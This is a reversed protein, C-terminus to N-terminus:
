FLRGVSQAFELPDKANKRLNCPRCAIVLNAADHKGGKSLATYHDVTFAKACKCGCWYCVKPQARKWALLDASSIGGEEQARRRHKYNQSIALRKEPNAERWEKASAIHAARFSENSAYKARRAGNHEAGWQQKYEAVRERHAVVYARHQRNMCEKCATRHAGGRLYFDSIPRVTECRTCRKLIPTAM